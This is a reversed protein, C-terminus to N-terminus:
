SKKCSEEWIINRITVSAHGFEQLRNNKLKTDCPSCQGYHSCLRFQDVVGMNFEHDLMSGIPEFGEKGMWHNYLYAHCQFVQGLPDILLESTKCECKVTKPMDISRPYKYTGYTIGKHVGLFEKLEFYVDSKIDPVENDPHAVMWIGVDSKAKNGSVSFGFHRLYKCIELLDNIDNHGPHYSVRISPYPSTRKFKYDAFNLRQAMKAASLPLNTLLDYWHPTNTLIEGIDKYLLPEGGQLTIPLDERVPIRNIIKVWETSPLTKRHNFLDQRSESEDNSNICYKCNLQCQMTLFAAVYNFGDPFELKSLTQM